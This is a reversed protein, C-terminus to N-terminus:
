SKDNIDLSRPIKLDNVLRPPTLASASEGGKSFPQWDVLQYVACSGDSNIVTMLGKESEATL